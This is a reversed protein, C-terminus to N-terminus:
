YSALLPAVHGHEPSSHYLWCRVIHDPAVPLLQPMVEPCITLGYEIRKKCRPAFRCGSPL